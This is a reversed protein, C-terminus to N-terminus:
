FGFSTAANLSLTFFFNPYIFFFLTILLTLGVLLASEQSISTIVRFYPLAHSKHFYMLKILRIYYVAGVVSTLVGFLALFYLNSELAAFFVFFKSYFGALPPIGAMSFLSIALSFALLPHNSALNQLSSLQRFNPTSFSPSIQSIRRPFAALHSALGSSSPRKLAAAPISLSFPRGSPALGAGIFSFNSQLLPSFKLSMLIGFVNLSMIIYLLMYLILSQVGVVTGSAVAMLLFGVHGIASYSLLRKLNSQELAAFSGIIMSGLASILIPAQWVDFFSYFSSFLLRILLVFVALKPVIAFFATSTIPSGQYVDPAWMHFPAAAVKFLLGVLLFLIGIIIGMDNAYPLAPLALAAFSPGLSDLSSPSSGLFSLEALNRLLDGHLSAAQFAVELDGFNTMGSFGYIMSMGFLLLGSSFGGLIFYKLGAETSYESDRNFTALVYLSLSQMELALYMTLLDYSSVMLILGFTALLILIVYEFAYKRLDMLQLSILLTCIASGILILKSIASLYDVIVLGEFLIRPQFLLLDAEASHLMSNLPHFPNNVVLIGMLFLTWIGFWGMTSAQIRIQNQEAKSAATSVSLEFVGYVLLILVAVMLFIEPIIGVLDARIYHSYIM